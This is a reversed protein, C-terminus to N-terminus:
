NLLQDYSWSIYYLGGILPNAIGTQYYENLINNGGIKIISNLKEWKYSVQADLSNYSPVMGTGAASEWLFEEQWRWNLAFGINKFVNRNSFGFNLRYKPTNFETQASQEDLDEIDNFAVSGKLVYSKPMMWDAGFAWGYATVPQDNSIFTRYLRENNQYPNQALNIPSIFGNFENVYVYTDILVKENFLGKYGAEFATVREPRYQPVIFVGSATDPRDVVPNPGELRYVPNEDFEYKNHVAKVGGIVRFLGVNLDTWQDQIAPFRFATQISARFYHPKQAIPQYVLSFRPTLRGEFNDSKDFRASGTFRLQEGALKKSIQGFAGVQEVIVPDGPEDFFVSGESNINYRRLNVGVMIDAFKIKRDFNYIAEFNVMSTKDVIRSGTLSENLNNSTIQDRLSNFEDTGPIPIAPLSPDAINGNSLRNDAVQRASQHAQGIISELNSSNQNILLIQAFTNIYDEFWQENSKWADNLFIATNGADYTDGANEQIGWLRLTFDPSKLEVKGNIARFSKLSFRNQATYVSTGRGVGIKGSLELEDNIRYHLSLDTLLNEANYDVLHDELFGTRTVNQDPFLDVVNQVAADYEPTGPTLGQTEAVGAGILPAVSKLNTGVDDGYVNVGDYGPNSARTSNPDTLNTRDRQDLAHWDTATIYNVNVKFAFRDNYAKAYRLSFDGMPAPSDRYDANVHMLGTQATFSLGQYDFPNKSRMIVTGNVGGAGYLASSAGVLLEVSEVDLPPLGFINGAAFSLGPITNDVGDIIQNVRFNTNGNFGRTNVTKFTFSMKHIDVGKLHSISEYFDRAPTQRIDLIDLKEISVPSELISQEFRSASVVVEQGLLTSEDLNINITSIAETIEIEQGTYGVSTFAIIFPPSSEVKLSYSGDVDTVTGILKNKVKINVGVLPDNNEDTVKGSISTQAFVPVQLLFIICLISNISRM